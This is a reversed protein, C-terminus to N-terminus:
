WYSGYYSNSDRDIGAVMQIRENEIGAPTQWMNKLVKGTIPDLGMRAQVIVSNM